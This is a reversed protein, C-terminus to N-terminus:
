EVVEIRAQSLRKTDVFGGQSKGGAILKSVSLMGRTSSRSADTGGRCM